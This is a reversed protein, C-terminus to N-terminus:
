VLQSTLRHNKRKSATAGPPLTSNGFWEPNLLIFVGCVGGIIMVIERCSLREDLVLWGLIMTMFVACSLLTQSIALPLFYISVMAVLQSFYGYFVRWLIQKQTEWKFSMFLPVGFWDFDIGKCKGYIYSFIMILICRFMTFYQLEAWPYVLHQGVKQSVNVMGRTIGYCLCWSLGVIYTV